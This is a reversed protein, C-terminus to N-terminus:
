WLVPWTSRWWMSWVAWGDRLVSIVQRALEVAVVADVVILLIGNGCGVIFTALGDEVQWRRGLGCVGIFLCQLVGYM